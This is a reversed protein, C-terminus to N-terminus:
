TARGAEAKEKIQVLVGSGLDSRQTGAASPRQQPELLQRLRESMDDSCKAVLREKLERERDNENVNVLVPDGKSADADMSLEVRRLRPFAGILQLALEIEGNELGVFCLHLSLPIVPPDSASEGGEGSAAKHGSSCSELKKVLAGVHRDGLLGCDIVWEPM